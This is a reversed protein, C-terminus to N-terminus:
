PSATAFSGAMPRYRRACALHALRRKESERPGSVLPRSPPMEDGGLCLGSHLPGGGRTAGYLVSGDLSVTLSGWPDSGRVGDFSVVTKLTGGRVPISFITGSKRMGGRRTMGYLTSGDPSKTLSGCPEAGNADDFSALTTASGGGVSLRFVTGKDHAGGASTTGYLDPGIITVDGQPVAGNNGDFAALVTPSGGSTPISFVTGKNNAGGDKTMGYLTSESLVLSGRPHAGNAGDLSALIKLTGGQMPISFITGKGHAGGYSTMGYLTSGGVTLAGLPYAGHTYDFSALTTLTGGAIPISFITGAASSGGHTLGYLNSGSLTLSGFPHQGNKGDFSALVTPTGGLPV